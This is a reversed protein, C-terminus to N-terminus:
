VELTPSPTSSGTTTTTARGSLKSVAINVVNDWVTPYVPWVRDSPAGTNFYGRDTKEARAENMAERVAQQIAHVNERYAESDFGEIKRKSADYYLVKKKGKKHLLTNAISVMRAVIKDFIEKPIARVDVGQQFGIVTPNWLARTHILSPGFEEIAIPGAASLAKDPNFLSVEQEVEGDSRIFNYKKGRQDIGNWLYYTVMDKWNVVHSTALPPQGKGFRLIPM